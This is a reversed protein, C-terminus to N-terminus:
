ESIKFVNFEKNEFIKEGNKQSVFNKWEQELSEQTNLVIYQGNNQNYTDDFYVPYLWKHLQIQNDELILTTTQSSYQSLVTIMNAYSFTAYGATLKNEELCDVVEILSDQKGNLSICNMRVSYASGIIMATILAISIIQKPKDIISNDIMLVVILLLPFLALLFYRPVLSATSEFVGGLFVLLSLNVILISITVGIYKKVASSLQKRKNYLIFASYFLLIIFLIKIIQAMGLKSFIPSLSQVGLVTLLAEPIQIIKQIILEPSVISALDTISTVHYEKTFVFSYLLYGISSVIFSCLILLINTKYIRPKAERLDSITYIDKIKFLQMCVYFIIPIFILLFYRLGCLGMLFSLIFLLIKSIASKYKSSNKTALIFLGLYLFTNLVFFSYYCDALYFMFYTFSLPTIIICAAMLGKWAPLKMTRFCFFVSSGMLFSCILSLYPQITLPNSSFKFLFKSILQNHLVRFETSYYWGKSFIGGTQSLLKGLMLEGASDSDLFANIYYKKNILFIFILLFILLMAAFFTYLAQHTTKSFFTNKKRKNNEHTYVYRKNDQM